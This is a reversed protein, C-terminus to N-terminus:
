VQRVLRGTAAPLGHRLAELVDRPRVAKICDYRGECTEQKNCPCCALAAHLAL